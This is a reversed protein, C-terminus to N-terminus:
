PQLLRADGPGPERPFRPAAPTPTLEPSPTAVPSPSPAAETEANPNFISVLANVLADRQTRTLSRIATVDGQMPNTRLASASPYTNAEMRENAGLYDALTLKWDLRYNPPRGKIYIHYRILRSILTNDSSVKGTEKNVYQNELPLNPLQQYIQKWVTETEIREAAVAPVFLKFQNGWQPLNPLLALVVLGVAILVARKALRAMRRSILLRM